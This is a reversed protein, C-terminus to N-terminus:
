NSKLILSIKDMAKELPEEPKIYNYNEWFIEPKENILDTFITEPKAVDRYRFRKVDSTDIDTVVMEINSDYLSGFLQKRQRIRFATECRILNLYYKQGFERYSVRYKAEVPKVILWRPKKVVFRNGTKQIGNKDLSFELNKIALNKVDIYIKGLYLPEDVNEKQRFSIVYTERNNDSIIDSLQYDYYGFYEEQLFDAPNKVVDLLITTNLGAKLKILLSDRSDLNQSQRGKLVKILDKDNNQTYGSKYTQLVSETISLFKSGHEITERYFSTLVSPNENYNDPIKKLATKILYIPDTKRIIVEQIPIYETKLEFIKQDRVKELPEIFTRYGICSIGLSDNQMSSPVKIIFEGNMNSVSGLSKGVICINAFPVPRTTNNDIIKGSVIFMNYSRDGNTHTHISEDKVPRYLVIQKEIVSYRITKDNLITDLLEHLRINEININLPKTGTFLDPNYSFYFPLSSEIINLAEPINCGNCNLAVREDLVPIQGFLYQRINILLIM